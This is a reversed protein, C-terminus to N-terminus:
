DHGVTDWGQWVHSPHDGMEGEQPAPSNELFVKTSVSLGEGHSRWFEEWVRQKADTVASAAMRQAQRYRQPPPCQGSQNLAGLRWLSSVSATDDRHSNFVVRVPAEELSECNVRM